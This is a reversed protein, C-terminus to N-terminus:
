EVATANQEPVDNAVALTVTKSEDDITIFHVGTPSTDGHNAIAYLFPHVRKALCPSVDHFADPLWWSLGFGLRSHEQTSFLGCANGRARTIEHHDYISEQTMVRWVVRDTKGVVRAMEEARLITPVGVRLWAALDALTRPLAQWGTPSDAVIDEGNCDDCRVCDDAHWPSLTEGTGGCTPCEAGCAGCAMLYMGEHGRMVLGKGDCEACVFRRADDLFSWPVAGDTALLELAERPSSATAIRACLAACADPSIM